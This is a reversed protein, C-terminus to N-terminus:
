PLITQLLETDYDKRVASIIGSTITTTGALDLPYGIAIVQEGLAL